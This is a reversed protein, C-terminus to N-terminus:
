ERVITIHLDPMPPTADIPADRQYAEKMRDWSKDALKPERMMEFVDRLVAIKIATLKTKALEKKLEAKTFRLYKARWYNANTKIKPKGEPNLRQGPKIRTAKGDELLNAGRKAKKVPIPKDNAIM